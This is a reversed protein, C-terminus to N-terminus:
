PKFNRGFNRSYNGLEATTCRVARLGVTSTQYNVCSQVEGTTRDIVWLLRGGVAQTGDADSATEVAEPQAPSGRLIMPAPAAGARQGLVVVHPSPREAEARAAGASILGIGLAAMIAMSRRM